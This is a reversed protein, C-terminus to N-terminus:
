RQLSSKSVKSPQSLELNTSEQYVHVSADKVTGTNRFKRTVRRVSWKNSVGRWGFVLSLKRVTEAFRKKNIYYTKVTIIREENTYREMNVFQLQWTHCRYVFWIQWHCFLVVAYDTTGEHLTGYQRIAVTMLSIQQWRCFLVAARFKLSAFM